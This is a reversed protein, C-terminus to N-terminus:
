HEKSTVKVVEWAVLVGEQSDNKQLKAQLKVDMAFCVLILFCQHAYYRPVFM